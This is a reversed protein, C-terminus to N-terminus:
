VESDHAARRTVIPPDYYNPYGAVIEDNSIGACPSHFPSAYLYWQASPGFVDAINAAAGRSVDGAAVGNKREWNTLGRVALALSTGAFSLAFLAAYGGGLALALRATSRGARVCLIAGLACLEACLLGAYLTFLIFFKHNRKGIWTSTWMCYHDPRVVIRRASWSVISRNPKPQARAWDYQARRTIIGAPGDDRGALLADSDSCGFGCRRASWDFPFYGPGDLVCRVFAALALLDLALLPALARLGFHGRLRWALLPVFLALAAVTLAPLAPNVIWSGILTLSDGDMELVRLGCVRRYRGSSHGPFASPSSCEDGASSEMQSTSAATQTTRM